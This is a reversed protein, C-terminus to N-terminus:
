NLRTSKRDPMASSVAPLAPDESWPPLMRLRKTMETKGLDRSDFRGTQAACHQPPLGFCCIVPALNIPATSRLLVHRYQERAPVPHFALLLDGGVFKPVKVRPQRRRRMQSPRFKPGPASPQILATAGDSCLLFGLEM